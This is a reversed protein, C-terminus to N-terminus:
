VTLLLAIPLEPLWIHLDLSPDELLFIKKQSLLQTAQDMQTSMEQVLALMVLLWSLMHFMHIQLTSTTVLQFDLDLMSTEELLLEKNLIEQTQM